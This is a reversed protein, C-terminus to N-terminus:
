LLCMANLVVQFTTLISIQPGEHNSDKLAMGTQDSHGTFVISSSENAKWLEGLKESKTNSVKGNSILDKEYLMARLFLRYYFFYYCRLQYVGGQEGFSAFFFPSLVGKRVESFRLPM